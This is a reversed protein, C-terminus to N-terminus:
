ISKFYEDLDKILEIPIFNLEGRKKLIEYEYKQLGMGTCLSEIDYGYYAQIFGTFQQLACELMNEKTM